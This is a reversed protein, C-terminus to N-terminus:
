ITMEAAEDPRARGPYPALPRKADAAVAFSGLVLHDLETHSFDNFAQEPTCVIPEGRVNF